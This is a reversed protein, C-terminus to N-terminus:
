QGRTLARGPGGGAEPPALELQLRAPHRLHHPDHADLLRDPLRQLHEHASDLQLRLPGSLRGAHDAHQLGAADGHVDRELQLRLPVHVVLHRERVSHDHRHLRGHELLLRPERRMDDLQHVDRLRPRDGHLHLEPVGVLHVGGGHLVDRLEIGRAVHVRVPDRRLDRAGDHVGPLRVHQRLLREPVYRVHLVADRPLDRCRVRLGSLVFRQVFLVDRVLRVRLPDRHLHGRRCRRLRLRPVRVRHV